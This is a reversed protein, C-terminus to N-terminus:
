ICPSITPSIQSPFSFYILEKLTPAKELASPRDADVIILYSVPKWPNEPGVVIAVGSAKRLLKEL